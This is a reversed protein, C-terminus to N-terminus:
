SVCCVSRILQEPRPLQLVIPAYGDPIFHHRFIFFGFRYEKEWAFSPPKMFCAVNELNLNCYLEDDGVLDKPSKAYEVPGWTVKSPLDADGFAEYASQAFLQKDLEICVDYKCTERDFWKRHDEQSYSTSASMIWGDFVEGLEVAVDCGRASSNIFVINSRGAIKTAEHDRESDFDGKRQRRVIGEEGDGYEMGSEFDDRYGRLTGFRFQGKSIYNEYVDSTCYKFVSSTM